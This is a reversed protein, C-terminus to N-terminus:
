HSFRTRYNNFKHYYLQINLWLIIFVPLHRDYFYYISHSLIMTDVMQHIQAHMKGKQKVNQVKLVFSILTSTCKMASHYM